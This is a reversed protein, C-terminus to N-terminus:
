HGTNRIILGYCYAVGFITLLIGVWEMTGDHAGASLFLGIVSLVAMVIGMGWSSM